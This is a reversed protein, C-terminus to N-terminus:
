KPWILWLIAVGGIWALALAGGLWALLRWRSPAARSRWEQWLLLLAGAAAPAQVWGEPVTDGFVTRALPVGLVAVLGLAAIAVPRWPAKAM